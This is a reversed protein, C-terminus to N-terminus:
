SRTTERENLSKGRSSFKRFIKLYFFATAKGCVEPLFIYIYEFIYKIEGRCTKGSAGATQPLIM